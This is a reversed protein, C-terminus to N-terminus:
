MAHPPANFDPTESIQAFGLFSPAQPPSCPLLSSLLLNKQFLIQKGQWAQGEEEEEETSAIQAFIPTLTVVAATQVNAHTLTSV